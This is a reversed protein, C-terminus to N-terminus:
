RAPAIAAAAPDLPAPAPDAPVARRLFPMPDVHTEGSEDKMTIAFHLHPASNRIGSRGLTGLPEGAAVRVGSELDARVEDLHMYYTSMGGAHRVLVWRGGRDDSRRVVKEVVGERVALVPTGEADSLDVGCHGGGCEPSHSEGPRDAGFQRDESVPLARDSSPLPFVCAGAPLGPVRARRPAPPAPPEPPAPAPAPEPESVPAPPPAPPPASVASSARPRVTAMLAAAGAVVCAAALFPVRRRARGAPAVPPAAAVTPTPRAAPVLATTRGAACDRCLSVVRTGVIRAPSRLADVEM